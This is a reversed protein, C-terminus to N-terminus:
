ENKKWSEVISSYYNNEINLIADSTIDYEDDSLYYIRNHMGPASIEVLFHPNADGTKEYVGDDNIYGMTSVSVPYRDIENPDTEPLNISDLINKIEEIKYLDGKKLEQITALYDLDMKILKRAFNSM